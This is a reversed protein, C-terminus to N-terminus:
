KPHKHRKDIENYYKQRVNANIKSLDPQSQTLDLVEEWSFDDRNGFYTYIRRVLELDEQTDVAWRLSGYDPEHNVLLINFRGEKEYLYPMVHERHHALNAERWAQALANMTCVETDLGMPYTRKWPPPLRNAAFDYQFGNEMTEDIVPQAPISILSIHESNVLQGKFGNVTDDIVDPDILPCDGTIRVIIKADYTISAQYFRDLVDHQSGRFLDYGREVCLKEIVDDEADTSTAIVVRELTNAKLAREVVRVLMPEGGIDAMVKGPLRSAEYRAQVFAIFRDPM